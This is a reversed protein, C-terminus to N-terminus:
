TQTVIAANIEIKEVLHTKNRSFNMNVNHYFQIYILFLHDLFILKHKINTFLAFM